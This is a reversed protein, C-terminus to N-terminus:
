NGIKGQPNVVVTSNRGQMVFTGNSRGTIKLPYLWTDLISGPATGTGERSIARNLGHRTYGTLIRPMQAGAVEEAALQQRLMVGQAASSASRTSVAEIGVGRAGSATAAQGVGGGKGSLAAGLGSGRAFVVNFAITGALRARANEDTSLTEVLATARSVTTGDVLNQIDKGAECIPCVTFKVNDVIAGLVSLPGDVLFGEVANDTIQQERAQM